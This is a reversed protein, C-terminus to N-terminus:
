DKWSHASHIALLTAHKFHISSSVAGRLINIRANHLSDMSGRIMGGSVPAESDQELVVSTGMEGGTANVFPHSLARLDAPVSTGVDGGPVVDIGSSTSSPGNDLTVAAFPYSNGADIVHVLGDDFTIAAAQAGLLISAAAFLCTLSSTLGRFTSVRM